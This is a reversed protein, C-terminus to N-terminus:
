SRHRRTTALLALLGSAFLMATSPEPVAIAIGLRPFSYDGKPFFYGGRTLVIPENVVLNVAFSTTPGPGLPYALYYYNQEGEASTVITWNPDNALNISLGVSSDRYSVVSDGNWYNETSVFLLYELVPQNLVTWIESYTTHNGTPPMPNLSGVQYSRTVTTTETSLEPSVVGFDDKIADFTAQSFGQGSPGDFFVTIPSAAAPVAAALGIALTLLIARSAATRRKAGGAECEM